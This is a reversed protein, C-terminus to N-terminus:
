NTRRNMVSAPMSPHDAAFRMAISATGVSNRSTIRELAETMERKAAVCQAEDPSTIQVVRDRLETHGVSFVGQHQMIADLMRTFGPSSYSKSFTIGQRQIPNPETWYECVLKWHGRSVSSWLKLCKLSRAPGTRYEMRVAVPSSDFAFDKWNLYVACEIIRDIRNNAQSDKGNLM